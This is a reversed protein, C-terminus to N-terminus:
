GKFMESFNLCNNEIETEIQNPFYIYFHQITAPLGRSHRSPIPLSELPPVRGIEFREVEGGVEGM